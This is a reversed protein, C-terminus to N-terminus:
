MGHKKLWKDIKRGSEQLWESWPKEPVQPQPAVPTPPPIAVVEEQERYSKLRSAADRREQEVAETSMRKTALKKHVEEVLIIVENVWEQWEQWDKIQSDVELSFKLRDLKQKIEELQIENFLVEEQGLASLLQLCQVSGEQEVLEKHTM